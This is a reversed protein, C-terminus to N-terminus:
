YLLAIKHLCNFILRIKVLEQGEGHSCRQRDRMRSAENGM